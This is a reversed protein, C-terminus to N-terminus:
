LDTRLSVTANIRNNFPKTQKYHLIMRALLASVTYQYMYKPFVLINNVQKTKRLLFMRFQSVARYKESHRLDSLFYLIM